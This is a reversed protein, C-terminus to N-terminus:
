YFSRPKGADSHWTSCASCDSNACGHNQDAPQYWIEVEVYDLTNGEINECEGICEIDKRSKWGRKKGKPIGRSIWVPSAASRFVGNENRSFHAIAEPPILHAYRGMILSPPEGEPHNSIVQVTRVSAESENNDIDAALAILVYSGDDLTLEEYIDCVLNGQCLSPLITVLSDDAQNFVEVIFTSIGNDDEASAQVVVETNQGGEDREVSFVSIYPRQSSIDEM